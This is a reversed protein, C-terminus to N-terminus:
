SDSRYPTDKGDVFHALEVEITKPTMPVPLLPVVLVSRERHLRRGVAEYEMKGFGMAVGAGTGRKLHLSFSHAGQMGPEMSSVVTIASGPDGLRM